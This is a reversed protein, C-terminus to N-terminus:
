PLPNAHVVIEGPADDRCGHAPIDVDDPARAPLEGHAQSQLKFRARFPGYGQWVYPSIRLDCGNACATGFDFPYMPVGEVRAIAIPNAEVRGLEVWEGVEGDFARATILDGPTPTLGRLPVEANLSGDFVQDCLPSMEGGDILEAMTAEPAQASEGGACGGAGLLLLAAVIGVGRHCSSQKQMM